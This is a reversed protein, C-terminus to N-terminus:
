MLRFRIKNNNSQIEKLVEDCKKKMEESQQQSEKQYDVIAKSIKQKQERYGIYTAFNVILQFISLFSIWFVLTKFKKYSDTKDDISWFMRFKYATFLFFVLQFFPFIYNIVYRNITDNYEEGIKSPILFLIGKLIILLLFSYKIIGVVYGKKDVDNKILKLIENAGQKAKDRVTRNNKEKKM